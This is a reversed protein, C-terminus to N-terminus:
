ASIVFAGNQPEISNPILSSIMRFNSQNRQQDINSMSPEKSPSNNFSQKRFNNYDKSVIASGQSPTRSLAGSKQRMFPKKNLYGVM